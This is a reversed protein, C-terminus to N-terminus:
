TASNTARLPVAIALWGPPASVILEASMMLLSTLVSSMLSALTVVASMRASEIVVPLIASPSTRLASTSSSLRPM